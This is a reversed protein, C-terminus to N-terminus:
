ASKELVGLCVCSGYGPQIYNSTDLSCVEQPAIRWRATGSDLGSPKELHENITDMLDDFSTPANIGGTPYYRGWHGDAFIMHTILVIGYTEFHTQDNRSIDNKISIIKSFLNKNNHFLKFEFVTGREEQEGLDVISLDRRDQELIVKWRPATLGRSGPLKGALGLSKRQQNVLFAAETAYWAESAASVSFYQIVDSKQKLHDLYLSFFKDINM